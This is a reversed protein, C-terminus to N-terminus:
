SIEQWRGGDSVLTEVEVCMYGLSILPVTGDGDGNVVGNVTSTAHDNVDTDIRDRADMVDPPDVMKYHYRVADGLSRLLAEAFLFCVCGHETTKNIGYLCLIKFTSNPLPALLPNAWRRDKPVASTNMNHEYHDLHAIELRSTGAQASIRDGPVASRIMPPDTGWVADGGKPLLAALGSWTRMVSLRDKRSVLKNM